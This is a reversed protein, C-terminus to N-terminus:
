RRRPSPSRRRAWRARPRGRARRERRGRRGHLSRRASRRGVAGALKMNPDADGGALREHPEVGARLLALAHGGPVDDVGGRPQLRSRRGVANEDVLRRIACRLSRDLVAVGVRDIRFALGRGDGRVLGQLGTRAVADVNTLDASRREDAPLALELRERSREGAGSRLALRLQHRDDAHGPDALAAEHILEETADLCLGVEGRPALTARERVAFSDGVPREGLDDLSLSADEVGVVFCSTAALSPRPRTAIDHGLLLLGFPDLAVQAREHPEASSDSSPASRRPSANEAQRRKKSAIASRSRQHEDEFIEM